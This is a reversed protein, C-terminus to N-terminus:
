QLAHNAAQQYFDMAEAYQDFARCAEAAMFYVQSPDANYRAPPKGNYLGQLLEAAYVFSEAATRQEGQEWLARAALHHILPEHEAIKLAEEAHTLADAYREQLISLQIAEVRYALEEERSPDDFSRHGFLQGADGVQGREASWRYDSRRTPSTHVIQQM